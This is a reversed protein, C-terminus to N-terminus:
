YHRAIVPGIIMIVCLGQKNEDISRSPVLMGMLGQAQANERHLPKTNHIYIIDCERGLGDKGFCEIVVCSFAWILQGEVLTINNHHDLLGDFATHSPPFARQMALFAQSRGIAQPEEWRRVTNILGWPWWFCAWSILDHIWGCVTRDMEGPFRFWQISAARQVLYVNKKLLLICTPTTSTFLYTRHVSWSKSSLLSHGHNVPNM